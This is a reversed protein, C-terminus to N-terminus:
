QNKIWKECTEKGVMFVVIKKGFFRGLMFAIFSGLLIGALSLLSAQLPGYIIAGAITTITSPLPLITVQLFQLLVFILRGYFGCSIIFDKIKEVSNLSNWLGTWVLIYYGLLVCACLILATLITRLIKKKTSFEKMM